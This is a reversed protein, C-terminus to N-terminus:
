RCNTMGFERVKEVIEMLIGVKIRAETRPTKVIVQTIIM